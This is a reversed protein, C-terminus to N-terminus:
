PMVPGSFSADFSHRGPWEDPSSYSRCFVRRSSLHSAPVARVWSWFSPRKAKPMQLLNSCRGRSRGTKGSSFLRMSLNTPRGLGRFPAQAWAIVTSNLHTGLAEIRREILKRLHNELAEAFETDSRAFSSYAGIFMGQNAFHREWFRNLAKLQQSQQEFRDPSQTDFLAPKSARYVLLDPAGQQADRSPVSGRVGMGHGDGTDARRNRPIRPGSYARPPTDRSPVM